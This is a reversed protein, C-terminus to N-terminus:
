LFRVTTTPPPSRMALPRLWSSFRLSLGNWLIAKRQLPDAMGAGGNGVSEDPEVAPPTSGANGTVQDEVAAIDGPKGDDEKDFHVRRRSEPGAVVREAADVFDNLLQPDIALSSVVWPTKGPVIDGIAITQGEPIGLPHVSFVPVDLIRGFAVRLLELEPDGSLHEAFDRLADETQDPKYQGAIEFTSALGPAYPNALVFKGQGHGANQFPERSTELYEHWSVVRVELREYPINVVSPPLSENWRLLRCRIERAKDLFQDLTWRNATIRGTM